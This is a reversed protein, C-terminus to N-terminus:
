GGPIGRNGHQWRECRSVARRPGQRIDVGMDLAMIRVIGELHFFAARMIATTGDADTAHPDGNVEDIIFRVVADRGSEMAAWLLSNSVFQTDVHVHNVGAETDTIFYRAFGMRGYLIALVLAYLVASKHHSQCASSALVKKLASLNGQALTERILCHLRENKSSQGRVRSPKM